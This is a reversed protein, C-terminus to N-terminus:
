IKWREIEEETITELLSKLKSRVEMLAFGLLNQGLWASPNCIDQHDESLGVGWVTDYPSAEVLVKNGTDVLFDMLKANQTFKLLNGM